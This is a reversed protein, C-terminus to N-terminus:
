LFQVLESSINRKLCEGVKLGAAHLNIIPIMGLHALTRTMVSARGKQNPFVHINNAKLYEVDIDGYLHVIGISKNKESLLNIDLFGDTGLITRQEDYDCFFIFDTDAASKYLVDADTTTIVKSAGLRLFAESIVEGFHDDSWVIINNQYVEYGAEMAMKIALPGCGSFIKLDPHNEWTGAVKFNNKKCYNIDVDAERTEWAECMIPIATKKADAESLFEANLPRVFGLNTIIDAQKIHEKPRKGASFIIKDALGLDTALYKCDSIIDDAKAYSSDRTWAFVREAGARAAIIPTYLFYNSGVETLVTMGSLNLNLKQIVKDIIKIARQHPNVFDVM